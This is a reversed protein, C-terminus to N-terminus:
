NRLKVSSLLAVVESRVEGVMKEELGLATRVPDSLLTQHLDVPQHRLAGHLLVDDLPRLPLEDEVM